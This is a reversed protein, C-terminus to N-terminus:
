PVEATLLLRERSSVVVGGPVELTVAFLAARSVGLKPDIRVIVEGEGEVDFVGGDVPHADPREADFIWLQYQERSPDNARLGDFRMYGAQEVDSWVVDGRAGQGGEDDTVAWPVLLSDSRAILAARDADVEVSTFEARGGLAWSILLAAAALWGLYATLPLGPRSVLVQPTNPTSVPSASSRSEGTRDFAEGDRLFQAADQSLRARLGSPVEELEDQLLSLHVAAAARGFAEADLEGASVLLGDLEDRECLDLGELAKFALLEQLRDDNSRARM